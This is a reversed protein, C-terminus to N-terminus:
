KFPNSASAVKIINIQNTRGGDILGYFLYFNVVNSTSIFAQSFKGTFFCFVILLKLIVTGRKFVVMIHFLRDHWWKKVHLIGSYLFKLM